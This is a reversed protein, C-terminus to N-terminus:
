LQHMVGVVEKLAMKREMEMPVIVIKMRPLRGLKEKLRLEMYVDFDHVSQGPVRELQDLDEVVVVEEIGMGVDLIVWPDSPPELNETPDMIQFNIDPFREELEPVLGVLLSDREEVPNGFVTVVQHKIRLEQNM